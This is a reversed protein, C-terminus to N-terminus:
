GIDKLHEVMRAQEEQFKQYARKIGTYVLGYGVWFVFVFLIFLNYSTPVEARDIVATPGWSCTIMWGWMWRDWGKINELIGKFCWKIFYLYKM